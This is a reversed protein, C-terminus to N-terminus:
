QSQYLSGSSLAMSSAKRTTPKRRPTDADVSLWSITLFYRVILNTPYQKTLILFFNTHAYVYVYFPQMGDKTAKVSHQVDHIVEKMENVNDSVDGTLGKIAKVNGDVNHTIELNRAVTMATEEKTLTDLRELAEEVNTRGALKKLFKEIGYDFLFFWLSEVLESMRRETMAKTSLALICLLQAMIKGLLEILENTLPLGIYIKMRQLFFHIREFLRIIKEHSAVVDRV